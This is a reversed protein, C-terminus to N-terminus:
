ITMKINTKNLQKAITWTFLVCIDSMNKNRNKHNYIIPKQSRM